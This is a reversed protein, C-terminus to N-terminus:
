KSDVPDSHLMWLHKRCDLAGRIVFMAIILRLTAGKGTLYAMDMDNPRWFCGWLLIIFLLVAACDRLVVIRLWNKSAIAKWPPQDPLCIFLTGLVSLTTYILVNM